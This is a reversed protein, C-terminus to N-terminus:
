HFHELFILQPFTIMSEPLTFISKCNAQPQKQGHRLDQGSLM